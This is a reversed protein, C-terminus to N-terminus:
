VLPGVTTAHPYAHLTSAASVPRNSNSARVHLFCSWTIGPLPCTPWRSRFRALTNANVASQTNSFRPSPETAVLPEPDVLPAAPVFPETPLFPDVLVARGVERGGFGTFAM